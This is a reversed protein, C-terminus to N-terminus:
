TNNDAAKELIINYFSFKNSGILLSSWPYKFTCQWVHKLNTSSTHMSYIWMKKEVVRDM